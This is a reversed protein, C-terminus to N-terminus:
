RYVTGSLVRRARHLVGPLVLETGGLATLPLLAAAM